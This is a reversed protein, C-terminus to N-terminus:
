TGHIAAARAKLAAAQAALAAGRADLSPTTPVVLQDLPLLVPTKGVPGAPWTVQPTASCSALALCLFIPRIMM